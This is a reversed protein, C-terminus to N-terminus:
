LSAGAAADAAATGCGKAMEDIERWLAPDLQWEDGDVTPWEPACAAGAPASPRFMAAMMRRDPESEVAAEAPPPAALDAGVLIRLPGASLLSFPRAVRFTSGERLGMAQHQFATLAVTIRQGPPPDDGQEVVCAAMVVGAEAALSLVRLEAAGGCGGQTWASHRRQLDACVRVLVQTLKGPASRLMASHTVRFCRQASAVVEPSVPAASRPAASGDVADALWQPTGRQPTQRGGSRRSGFSLRRSDPKRDLAAAAAADLMAEEEQQRRLTSRASAETVPGRSSRLPTGRVSNHPTDEIAEPEARTKRAKRASAPYGGASAPAVDDAEERGRKGRPRLGQRIMSAADDSSLSIDDAAPAAAPRGPPQEAAGGRGRRAAGGRGRQRRPPTPDPPPAALPRTRDSGWEPFFNLFDDEARSGQTASPGASARTMQTAHTTQTPGGRTGLVSPPPVPAPFGSPQWPMSHDAGDDWVVHEDSSEDWDDDRAEVVARLANGGASAGGGRHQGLPPAFGAASLM